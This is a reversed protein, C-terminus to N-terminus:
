EETIYITTAHGEKNLDIVPLDIRNDDGIWYCPAVIGLHNTNYGASYMTNNTVKIANVEGDETNSALFKVRATDNIWYCPVRRYPLIGSYSIYSEIYAAINPPVFDYSYDYIEYYGVSYMTGNTVQVDYAFGKADVEVYTDHRYFDLFLPLIKYIGNFWYCSIEIDASNHSFGTIYINNDVIQMANARANKGAEAVSLIILTDNIWYCPTEIGSGNTIYGAVYISNEVIQITNAQGNGSADIVPLDIREENIWYCPIKVDDSNTSYGATFVTNGIVQIDMTQASKTPDLTQLDIREEDVWYCPVEVDANDTTYGAACVINEIVKVANVYGDKASNLVPLDTREENKWYCPVKVDDNSTSYGATYVTVTTAKALDEVPTCYNLLLVICTVIIIFAIQRIKKIQAKM